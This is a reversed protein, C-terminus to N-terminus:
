RSYYEIVDRINIQKEIDKQDPLSIVKGILGKKELWRPIIINKNNLHSEIYPIKTVMQSAFSVVDGIKVQYSPISIKKDNVKIHGHSILQRAAARTPALALRYVVNDLRRELFQFLYLATNGKKIVAQQFYKKLQKETLGFLFRLKQKERLQKGRESYKRHAKIGHQGPLINIKKLLAAHAKTGPTKLGLDLGERRAIKNRPGRYRM